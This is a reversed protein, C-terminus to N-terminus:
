IISLGQFLNGLSYNNITVKYNYISNIVVNKVYIKTQFIANSDIYVYIIHKWTMPIKM